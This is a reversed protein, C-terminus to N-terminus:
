IGHFLTLPRHQVCRFPRYFISVKFGVLNNLAAINMSSETFIRENFTDDEKSEMIVLISNAVAAGLKKVTKYISTKNDQSKNEGM